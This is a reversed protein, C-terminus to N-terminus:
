PRTGLDRQKRLQDRVRKLADRAAALQTARTQDFPRLKLTEAIKNRVIESLVIGRRAHSIRECTERSRKKGRLAAVHEATKKKGRLAQSLKERQQEPMKRGRLKAAIKERVHLPVRHGLRGDGGLTDNVLGPSLQAIWLQEKKQWEDFAVFELVRMEPLLGLQDLERLWNCRHNARGRRAEKIHRKLRMWGETTFGVYRVTGTRPDALGYIVCTKTKM